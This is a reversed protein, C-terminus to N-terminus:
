LKPILSNHCRSLIAATTIGNGGDGTTVRQRARKKRKSLTSSLRTRHDDAQAIPNHVNAIHGKIVVDAQSLLIAHANKPADAPDKDSPGGRFSWFQNTRAAKIM